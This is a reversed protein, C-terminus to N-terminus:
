LVVLKQRQALNHVAVAHNGGLVVQRELSHPPACARAHAHSLTPQTSRRQRAPLLTCGASAWRRMCRPACHVPPPRPRAQRASRMYLPPRPRPAAGVQGSGANEGGRGGVWGGQRDRLNDLSFLVRHLLFSVPSSSLSNWSAMRLTPPHTHLPPTLQAARPVHPATRGNARPLRREGAGWGCVGGVGVGERQRGRGGPSSSEFTRRRGAWRTLPAAAPATTRAAPPPAPRQAHGAAGLGALGGGQWVCVCM